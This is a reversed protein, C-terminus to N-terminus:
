DKPDPPPAVKKQWLCKCSASSPGGDGGGYRVECKREYETGDITTSKACGTDKCEATSCRGRVSLLEDIADDVFTDSQQELLDIDGQSLESSLNLAYVCHPIVFTFLFVLPILGKRCANM